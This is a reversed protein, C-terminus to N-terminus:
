GRSFFSPWHSTCKVIIWGQTPIFKLYFGGLVFMAIGGVGQVRIFLDFKRTGRAIM